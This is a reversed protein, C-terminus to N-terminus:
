RSCKKSDMIKEIRIRGKNDLAISIEGMKDTRYIRSGIKKLRKL